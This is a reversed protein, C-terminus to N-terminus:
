KSSTPNHPFTIPLKDHGHLLFWQGTGDVFPVEVPRFGTRVLWGNDYSTIRFSEVRGHCGTVGSGCIVLLNEPDNIWPATSGGMQRPKRHHISMGMSLPGYCIECSGKARAILAARAEQRTKM